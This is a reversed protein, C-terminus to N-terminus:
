RLLRNSLEEGAEFATKKGNAIDQELSKKIGDLKADGELRRTLIQRAAQKLHFRSQDLRRQQWTGNDLAQRHYEEVSTWIEEIGTKELASCSLAKPRWFSRMKISSLAAQHINLTKKADGKYDGDSKNVVVLDALELIGKKIGQLEDGANPLTLLIFFDVLEALQYESQGVGVSEVIIVDYGASECLLIADGTHPAIGGFLGSNPSPRIFTNPKKSLESMRTKDGLLSGGSLPSSPDITLAALKKGKELLSLGLAEIFTSKGVGPVGSIGLRLASGTEPLLEKLLKQARKQDQENKSEILTIAKALARTDNNKIDEPRM